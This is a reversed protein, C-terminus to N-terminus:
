YVISRREYGQYNNLEFKSVRHGQKNNAEKGYAYRILNFWFIKELRAKPRSKKCALIHTYLSHM